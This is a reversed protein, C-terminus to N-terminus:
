ILDPFMGPIYLLYDDGNVKKIKYGITVLYKWIDSTIFKKYQDNKSWIEILILPRYKAILQRGGELCNIEHGEIDIKIFKVPKSENVFPIVYDLTYTPIKMNSKDPILVSTGGFNSGDKNYNQVPINIVGLSDNLAGNFVIVNNLDNLKINDLLIKYHEPMMEFGIIDNKQNLKSLLITHSGIYTGCDIITVNEKIYKKFVNEYLKDEWVNGTLINNCVLDNNDFCKIKGYISHKIIKVKPSIDINESEFKEYYGNNFQNVIYFIIIIAILIFISYCPINYKKNSLKM